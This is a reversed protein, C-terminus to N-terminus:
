APTNMALLLAGALGSVEGLGPSLVFEEFDRSPSVAYGGLEAELNRRLIAHFEPLHSVGGGVVIRDPAAVFALNRLGQAVYFAALDVARTTEAHDLEFAPAGFRAEIATGSALGELCDGHFPCVGAFDDSPHRRVVVHGFEPHPSGHVPIGDVVLGGGIGTGLTVYSVTGAGVGAGWISEAYAAANVDTEIVVDVGLRESVYGAVNTGSWMPKPTSTIHGHTASGPSLDLPGFSAIGISDLTEAALKEVM